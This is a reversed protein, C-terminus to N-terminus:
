KRQLPLNNPTLQLVQLDNAFILIQVLLLDNKNFM